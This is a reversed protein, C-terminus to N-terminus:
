IYSTLLILLKPQLKYHSSPSVHCKDVHRASPWYTQGLKGGWVSLTGQCSICHGADNNVDVISSQPFAQGTSLIHTPCVYLDWQWAKHHCDDTSPLQESQFHQIYLLHGGIFTVSRSSVPFVQLCIALVYRCGTTLPQSSTHVHPFSDPTQQSLGVHMLCRRPHPCWWSHSGSTLM